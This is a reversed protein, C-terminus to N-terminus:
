VKLRDSHVIAPRAFASSLQLADLPCSLASPALMALMVERTADYHAHLLACVTSGDSNPVRYLYRLLTPTMPSFPSDVQMWVTKTLLGINRNM